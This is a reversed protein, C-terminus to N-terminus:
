QQEEPFLVAPSFDSGTLATVLAPQEFDLRPPMVTCASSPICHRPLLSIWQPRTSSCSAVPEAAQSFGEAHLLASPFVVVM